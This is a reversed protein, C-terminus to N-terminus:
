ESTASLSAHGEEQSSSAATALPQIFLPYQDTNMMLLDHPVVDITPHEIVTMGQLVTKLCDAPMWSSDNPPSHNTKNKFNHHDNDDINDSPDKIENTVVAVQVSLPPETTPPHIEIYSPRHQPCPLRKILLHFPTSSSTSTSASTPPMTIISSHTQYWQNWQAWLSAKESLKNITWVIPEPMNTSSQNTGSAVLTDDDKLANITKTTSKMMMIMMPTKTPPTTPPLAQPLPLHIRFEVKWHIARTKPNYFSTNTIHRQMSSPMLMLHTGRELCQQVLRRWKPPINNNNNNHKNNPPRHNNNNHHSPNPDQYSTGNPYRDYTSASSSFLELVTTEKQPQLLPHPPPPTTAQDNINTSDGTIVTHLQQQQPPPASHQNAVAGGLTRLLRKSRHVSQLVDELFFYDSQLQQSHGGGGSGSGHGDNDNERMRGLSVFQTRDRKGNCGTRQKHRQCCALSCTRRSCRPCQYLASATQCEDCGFLPSAASSSSSAASSSHNNTSSSLMMLRAMLLLLGRSLPNKSKTTRHSQTSLTPAFDHSIGVHSM